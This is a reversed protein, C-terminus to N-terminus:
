QIQKLAGLMHGLRDTEFANVGRKVLMYLDETHNSGYVMLRSLWSDPFTTERQFGRLSALVIDPRLKELEDINWVRDEPLVWGIRWGYRSRAMKIINRDFSILTWAFSAQEMVIYLSDLVRENGHFQISEKKIEVFVEIRKFDNFLDVADKLLPLFVKQNRNYFGGSKVAHYGELENSNTRLINREIGWCRMLDVDHTVFPVFDASIQVDLEVGDAGMWFASEFSPLTNEPHNAQDGRHAIVRMGNM